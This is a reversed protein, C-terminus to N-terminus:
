VLPIDEEKVVEWEDEVVPANVVLEDM